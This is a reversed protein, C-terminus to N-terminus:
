FTHSVADNMCPNLPDNEELKKTWFLTTKPLIKAKKLRQVLYHIKLLFIQLFVQYKQSKQTQNKEKREQRKKKRKEKKKKKKFPCCNM